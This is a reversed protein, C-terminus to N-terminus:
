LIWRAIELVKWASLGGLVIIITAATKSHAGVWLALKARWSTIDAQIDRLTDKADM